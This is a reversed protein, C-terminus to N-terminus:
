AASGEDPKVYGDRDVMEMLAAFQAAIDPHLADPAYRWSWNGASVGPTNMRAESGLFLVDQMPLICTDSVSREAARIMAWVADGDYKIKQLYTQVNAREVVSAKRWWGLTTDNDHTGTYIVSNPTCCHPLYMHGGRDSFGFQMVKMGAMGFHLRLADVEPTIVGLDEAIFPLRGFTERLTQFLEQGPVKVWSGNIATPEEAPISWFAEFGRFHDLRISDCLALSRRIRAIWWVFGREQMLKWRYVPNGWRQGEKAFYDPPVGAVKVPKLKEDLEFLDPHTWVDASDYNVFIAVDGMIQIGRERCYARLSRWQEDFFFQIVQEVQIARAQEQQLTAMAKKKRFAYPEPWDVWCTYKFQRRLITFSAFDTLWSANEDCFAQMRSRQEDNARDLFNAAAEELRPMKGARAGDFDTPGHAPPLDALRERAIWGEDALRELSIFLPNGAFASLASYPSNGFGTPGLPLIQWIRQKAAALFDAFQFAAPGFDGIGGYSPLSSIHLLVGSARQSRREM